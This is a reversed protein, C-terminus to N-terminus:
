SPKTKKILTVVYYIIEAEVVPVVDLLGPYLYDPIADM